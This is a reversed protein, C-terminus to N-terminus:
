GYLSRASARHPLSLIASIKRIEEPTRNGKVLLNLIPIMSPDLLYQRHKPVRQFINKIFEIKDRVDNAAETMNTGYTFRITIQSSGESSVSLIKDINGVNSLASELPRTITKEIEDPGTGSYNTFVLLVPPSIEPYLDIALDM